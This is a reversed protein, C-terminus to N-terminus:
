NSLTFDVQKIIQHDREFYVSYDGAHWNENHLPMEDAALDAHEEILYEQIVISHNQATVFIRAKKNLSVYDKDRYIVVTFM